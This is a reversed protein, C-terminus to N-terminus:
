TCAPPIRGAKARGQPLRQLRAICAFFSRSSDPTVRPCHQQHLNTSQSRLQNLAAIRKEVVRAFADSEEPELGAARFADRIQKPTLQALLGGIWQADLIPIDQEVRKAERYKNFYKHDFCRVFFPATTHMQLTLTDGTTARIFRAHEYDKLVDKTAHPLLPVHSPPWGTKGFTAGLDSVVYHREQEVVYVKNNQTTLDWNSILGMLVRLGNLERTGVFPNDFWGWNELKKGGEVQRELRVNPVIGTKSSAGFMKRRLKPLGQVHIRPLFYDEDTFYGMAWVLRTAATETRAEPGLKVLWKVANTDRVYFKTSTGGMDEDIFLYDADPDPADKAGGAGNLLDLSAIDGPDRWLVAPLASAAEVRLDKKAQKESEPPKTSKETKNQEQSASARLLPWDSLISVALVFAILCGGARFAKAPFEM